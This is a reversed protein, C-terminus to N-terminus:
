RLRNLVAQLPWGKGKPSSFNVSNRGSAGASGKRASNENVSQSQRGRMRAAANVISARNEKGKLAQFPLSIHKNTTASTRNSAIREPSSTLPGSSIMPPIPPRSKNSIGFTNGTSMRKLLSLRGTSKSDSTEPPLIGPFSSLDGAKECFSTRLPSPVRPIYTKGPQALSASDHLPPLSISSRNQPPLTAFRVKKPPTSGVSSIARRLRPHAALSSRLPVGSSSCTSQSRGSTNSSTSLPSSPIKSVASDTATLAPPPLPLPKERSPEPFNQVVPSRLDSLSVMSSRRGSDCSTVSETDESFASNVASANECVTVDEHNWGQNEQAVAGFHETNWPSLPRDRNLLQIQAELQAIMESMESVPEPQNSRASLSQSDSTPTVAQFPTPVDPYVTEQSTPKLSLPPPPQKGRRVALPAQIPTSVHTNDGGMDTCSSLSVPIVATSTSIVLAPMTLKSKEKSLLRMTSNASELGDDFFTGLEELRSLLSNSDSVVDQAPAHYSFHRRKPEPTVSSQPEIVM